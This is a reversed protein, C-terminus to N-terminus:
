SIVLVSAIGSERHFIGAALAVTENTKYFVESFHQTMLDKEKVQFM